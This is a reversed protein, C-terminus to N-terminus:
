RSAFGTSVRQLWSIQITLKRQAHLGDREESDAEGSHEFMSVARSPPPVTRAM